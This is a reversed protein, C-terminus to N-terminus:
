GAGGSYGRVGGSDGGGGLRRGGSLHRERGAAEGGGRDGCAAAGRKGADAWHTFPMFNQDSFTQPIAADDTNLVMLRKLGYAQAMEHQVEGPAAAVQASWLTVTLNSNRIKEALQPRWEESVLKADWWVSLGEAKLASILVDRREHDLHKYSVFVDYQKARFDDAKYVGDM